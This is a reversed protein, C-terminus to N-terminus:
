RPVRRKLEETWNLIVRIRASSPDAPRIMFFGTGDLDVDYQARGSGAEATAVLAWPTDLLEVAGAFPPRAAVAMLKQGQRFYLERSDRAWVPENGGARSIPWRQGGTRLAQVFVEFRGSENSTYAAWRGDPSAIAAMERFQTQVYPAVRKEPLTLTWIDEGRTFLLLRGDPSWSSPSAQVEADRYLVDSTGSRDVNTSVIEGGITKVTTIQRGDPTWTPSLHNTGSTVRSLRREALDYVFTSDDGESVNLALQRGDPSLRPQDVLRREEPMLPKIAGQRSVWVVETSELGGTVYALTGNASVVFQATGHGPNEHIGELVAIPPGIVRVAKEDFTVAYLTGARAYVIYGPAVYHAQAGGKILMHREGTDLSQAVIEADYWSGDVPPGATFLVHRGDPLYEPFRHSSERQGADFRTVEQPTGGSARVRSLVTRNSPAFIIHDDPGWSAGAMGGVPAIVVPAGGGIAVKRLAGAYRFGVWRGDPSFFPSPFGDSEAIVRSEPEDIRRVFLRSKGDIRANYVLHQGDPSLAVIPRSFRELEAGPPLDITLHARALTPAAPVPKLLWAAAAALGAALVVIAAWARNSRSHGTALASGAPQELLWQLEDALDAAAQWRADPDKALCRRVLRDLAPSVGARAASMPPTEANMIATVLAAQSAGAFPRQGTTMEYLVAGLAFIDTRADAPQGELQEPAMYPITGLLSGEGTLATVTDAHCRENNSQDSAEIRALGFDLLKVGSKTVMVNAPKLDRHVVGARHAAALAGAMEAAYHIAQDVPLAGRKLREALTEGHLHQMVLFSVGHHEGVDYLPCIHPHELAAIVRAEREFRKRAHGADALEGSLIKIAVTRDLRTDRARYVEGMGGAGIPAEILYPGLASGPTLSM